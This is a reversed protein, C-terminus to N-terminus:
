IDFLGLDGSFAVPLDLLCHRFAFNLLSQQRFDSESM